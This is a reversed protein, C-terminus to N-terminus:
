VPMSATELEAGHRLSVSFTLPHPSAIRIDRNIRSFVCNCDPMLRLPRATSKDRVPLGVDLLRLSATGNNPRPRKHRTTKIQRSSVASPNIILAGWVHPQPQAQPMALWPVSRTAQAVSTLAKSQDAENSIRPPGDCCSRAPLPQSCSGGGHACTIHESDGCAAPDRNRVEGAHPPASARGCGRDSPWTCVPQHTTHITHIWPRNAILTKSGNLEVLGGLGM